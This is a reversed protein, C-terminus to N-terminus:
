VFAQQEMPLKEFGDERAVQQFHRQEDIFGRAIADIRAVRASQAQRYRALFESSYSSLAPPEQFGNKPNYMDLAPDLSLPDNEDTLSPDIENLMTKGAGLHAAIFMIGDAPPMDIGNLDFPDGAATDTLRQGAPTVAQAQYFSYVSGGGSYGLLVVKEFGRGRMDVMMAAVDALLIEHSAMADNGPWRSEQAFVAYGGKVLAPIAYHRTMDGRPHLVCVLTKESKRRYLVGKSKGGDQATLSVVEPTVGEPPVEFSLLDRGPAYRGIRPLAM